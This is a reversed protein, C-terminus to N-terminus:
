EIKALKAHGYADVLAEVRKTKQHFYHAIERPSLGLDLLAALAVGNLPEPLDPWLHNSTPPGSKAKPDRFSGMM